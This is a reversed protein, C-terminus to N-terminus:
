LLGNFSKPPNYGDDEMSQHFDCIQNVNRCMACCWRDDFVGVHVIEIPGGLEIGEPATPVDFPKRTINVNTLHM